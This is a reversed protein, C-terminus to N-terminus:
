ADREAVVGAVLLVQAIAYTWWIGLQYTDFLSLFKAIGIM